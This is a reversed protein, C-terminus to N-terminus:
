LGSLVDIFGAVDLLNVSSDCNMDAELSYDSSGLREIFSAVDLLNVQSDFNVDGPLFALRRYFGRGSLCAVVEKGDPSHSINQVRIQPLGQNQNVWEDGGDTSFWVGTAQLTDGFPQKDTSLVLRNSDNPHVSIDHVWNDNFLRVWGDVDDYRWLGQNSFLFSSFNAVYIRNPDNPDVAMKMDGGCSNNIPSNPLLAFDMENTTRYVGSQAGVYFTDSDTPDSELRYVLGEGFDGVQIWTVTMPDVANANASFYVGDLTLVWVRNPDDPDVRISRPTRFPPPPLALLRWTLGGDASRVIAPQTNKAQGLAAYILNADFFDVDTGGGFPTIDDTSQTTRDWTQGGDRSQLTRASDFAQAIVHDPAFPNFEFNTAVWGSFGRGVFQNPPGAADVLM